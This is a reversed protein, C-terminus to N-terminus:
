QFRRSQAGRVLVTARQRVRLQNRFFRSFGGLRLWVAAADGIQAVGLRFSGVRQSQVRVTRRLALEQGPQLALDGLTAGDVHQAVAHPVACVVQIQEVARGRGACSPHDSRDM